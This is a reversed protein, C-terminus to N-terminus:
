HPAANERGEALVRRYIHLFQATVQPISFRDAVDMHSSAQLKAYSAPDSLIAVAARAIAGADNVDILAGNNGIVDVTGRSSIGAIAPVGRMKAEGIIVGFTELLAPHILLTAHDRLYDMLEAHPVNGHGIVQRQGHVLPHDADLGPGFLHLEAGPFAARIAPMAAVSAAVNKIATTNGVTVIRPASLPKAIWDSLGLPNPVVDVQGRFGYQWLKPEMFSSVVTLNRVRRMARIKMVLRIVRYADRFHFLYDWGLDHMTVLNPKGCRLAAEAHEYTWHAHVIDADSKSMVDALLAIEQAFLDRMRVRTRYRPPARLPCFTITLSGREYTETKTVDPDLTLVHVAHGAALLGAAIPAIPTQATAKPLDSLDMGVAEALSRTLM